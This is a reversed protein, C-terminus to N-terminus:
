GGIERLLRALEDDDPGELNPSAADNTGDVGALPARFEPNNRRLATTLSGGLSRMGPNHGFQIALIVRHTADPPLSQVFGEVAAADEWKRIGSWWDDKARTALILAEAQQLPSTRWSFPIHGFLVPWPGPLARPEALPHRPMGLGSDTEGRVGFGEDSPFCRDGSLDHLGVPLTMVFEQAIERLQEGMCSLLRMAEGSHRLSSAAVALLRGIARPTAEPPPGAAAGIACRLEAPETPVPTHKPKLNMASLGLFDRWRALETMRYAQRQKPRQALPLGGSVPFIRGYDVPKVNVHAGAKRAMSVFRDHGMYAWPSLPTFYYDITKTM